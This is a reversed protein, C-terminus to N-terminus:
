ISDNTSITPTADPTTSNDNTTVDPMADPNGTVVPRATPPILTPSNMEQLMRRSDEMRKMMERCMKMREEQEKLFEPSLGAPIEPVNVEPINYHHYSPVQINRASCGTNEDSAMETNVPAMSVTEIDETAGSDNCSVMNVLGVIFAFPVAALILAAITKTFKSTTEM